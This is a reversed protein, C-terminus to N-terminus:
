TPSVVSRAVTHARIEDSTLGDSQHAPHHDCPGRAQEPGHELSPEAVAVRDDTEVAHARTLRADPSHVHRPRPRESPEERARLGDDIECPERAGSRRPAVDPAVVEGRR